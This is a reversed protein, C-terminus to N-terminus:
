TIRQDSKDDGQRGASSLRLDGPPPIRSAFDALDDYADMPSTVPNEQLLATLAAVRIVTAEDIVQFMLQLYAAHPSDLRAVQPQFVTRRHPIAAYASEPDGLGSRPMASRDPLEVLVSERKACISPLM